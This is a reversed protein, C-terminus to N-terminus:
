FDTKQVQKHLKNVEKLTASGYWTKLDMILSGYQIAPDTETLKKAEEITKVNFIYIGRYDSNDMFPGALILEGNEAMRQINDMHGRFLSDSIEKSAPKNPGTKLIAMVYQSMGYEDAGLEKAYLSDYEIAKKEDVLQPSEDVCAKPENKCAYFVSISICLYFFLKTM